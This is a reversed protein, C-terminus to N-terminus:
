NPNKFNLEKMKWNLENMKLRNREKEQLKRQERVSQEDSIKKELLKTNSELRDKEQEFFRKQGEILQELTKFLRREEMEKVHEGEEVRSTLLTLKKTPQKLFLQNKKLQKEKTKLM